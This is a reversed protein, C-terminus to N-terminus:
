DQRRRGEQHGLLFNAEPNSFIDGILRDEKGKLAEMVRDIADIDGKRRRSELSRREGLLLQLM